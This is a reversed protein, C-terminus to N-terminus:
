VPKDMALELCIWEQGGIRYVEECGPIEHFGASLYCHRAPANDAFVGITIHKAHMDDFAHAIALRIMQKGYGKGRRTADLLVFGFRVTSRDEGPYRIIFHGVPQGDDLMVMPFPGSMPDCNAYAGTLTDPTIPYAGYRGASWRYFTTESDIWSIIAAADAPQFPRLELM